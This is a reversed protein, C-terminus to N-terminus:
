RVERTGRHAHRETTIKTQAGLVIVKLVHEELLKSWSALVHRCSAQQMSLEGHRALLRLVSKPHHSEAIPVIWYLHLVRLQWTLHVIEATLWHGQFLREVHLWAQAVCSAERERVDFVVRPVHQLLRFNQPMASRQLRHLAFRTQEVNNLSLLVV